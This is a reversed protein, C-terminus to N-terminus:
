AAFLWMNVVNGLNFAKYSKIQIKGREKRWFTVVLNHEISDCGLINTTTTTTSASTTNITTKNNNNNITTPWLVWDKFSRWFWPQSLKKPKSLLSGCLVKRHKKLMIWCISLFIWRAANFARVWRRSCQVLQLAEGVVLDLIAGPHGLLFPSTWFLTYAQLKQCELWSESFSTVNCAPSKGWIPDLRM